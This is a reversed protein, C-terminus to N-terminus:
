KRVIKTKVVLKYKDHLFSWGGIGWARLVGGASSVEIAILVLSCQDAGGRYCFHSGIGLVLTISATTARIYTNKKKQSRSCLSKKEDAMINIIKQLTASRSLNVVIKNM